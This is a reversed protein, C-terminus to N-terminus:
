VGLRSMSVELSPNKAIILHECLDEQYHSVSFSARRKGKAPAPCQQLYSKVMKQMAKPDQIQTKYWEEQGQAVAANKINQLARRGEACQGAGPAFNSQAEWRGCAPCWKKGAVVKRRSRGNEDKVNGRGKKSPEGQSGKGGENGSKQSDDDEFCKGGDIDDGLEDGCWSIMDEDKVSVMVAPLHQVHVPVSFLVATTASCRCYWM